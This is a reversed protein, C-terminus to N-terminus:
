RDFHRWPSGPDGTKVEVKEAKSSLKEEKKMNRSEKRSMKKSQKATM